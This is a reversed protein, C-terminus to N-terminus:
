ARVMGGPRAASAARRAGSAPPRPAARGPRRAGPGPPRPGGVRDHAGARVTTRLRRPLGAPRARRCRTSRRWESPTVARGRDRM